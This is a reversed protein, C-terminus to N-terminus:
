IGAPRLEVGEPVEGALYFRGDMTAVIEGSTEKDLGCLARYDEVEAASMGEPAAWYETIRGDTEKYYTTM